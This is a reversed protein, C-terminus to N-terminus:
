RHREWCATHWHRRADVARDDGLGPTDPWAVIHATGPSIAASCGPCRYTKLTKAGPMTQVIWRGDSKEEAYPHVSALPRPPRLHKSRRHSM